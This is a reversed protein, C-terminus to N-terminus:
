VYEPGADVVLTRPAWSMYVVAFAELWLGCAILWKPGHMDYLAGAFPQTVTIPLSYVTDAGHAIIRTIAEISGAVIGLGSSLQQRHHCNSVHGAHLLSSLPADSGVDSYLWM